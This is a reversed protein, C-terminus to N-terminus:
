QDQPDRSLLVKERTPVRIGVYWVGVVGVAGVLFQISLRNIAFAISLAVALTMMTIAIAKARRPMGLGSRFDQVMVGIVPLNLIWREFRPSSRAFCSAALIMFVTTPLGPVAIGILGVATFIMGFFLFFYKTPGTRVSSQSQKGM